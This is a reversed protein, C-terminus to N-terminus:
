SPEKEPKTIRFVQLGAHYVNRAHGSRESLAAIRRLCEDALAFAEPLLTEDLAFTESGVFKEKPTQTELSEAAKGLMERHFRRLAENPVASQTLTYDATRRYAGPNGPDREIMELRELRAIALEADLKSLGLRKAASAPTLVFGEVGLLNKIALHHWEAISAFLDVSLERVERRPNLSQAKELLAKRLDAGKTKELQVLTRLYEAEQSKLRLKQAIRTASELSLNKKGALVQSVASQGLGLQQAFARMSYSPNARQRESLVSKLWARYNNTELIWM